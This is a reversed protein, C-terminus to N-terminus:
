DRGNRCFRIIENLSEIANKDDDASMIHKGYRAIEFLYTLQRVPATPFGKAELLDEFERVTMTHSREIGREEQLSRTMQLYCRIIVSKLDVGAKLAHVAKEAEQFLPDEIGARHPWGKVAKIALLGMALVIGLIVLWILIQPAQGLPSVPYDFAPPSPVESIENPSYATQEPAIRPMMTVIILAIGMALLWLLTKKINVLTLLRISVYIMLILFALAFMGRLIPFSYTQISPLAKLSQNTDDTFGGGPFPMGSRLQLNSLSGALFILSVLVGALFLLSIHKTHRTL